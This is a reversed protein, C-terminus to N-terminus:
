IPRPKFEHREFDDYLALAGVLAAAPVFLNFVPIAFGLFIATGFGFLHGKHSLCWARRQEFTLGHFDFAVDLYEWALFFATVSFGLTAYAIPGVAIPTIYLILLGVQIILYWWWKKASRVVTDRVGKWWPREVVIGGRAKVVRAALADYFPASVISGLFAFLSSGLFLLAVIVAVFAAAMLLAGWWTEPLGRGLFGSLAWASAYLFAVLLFANVLLPVALLPWGGRDAYVARMGRGVYSFGRRFGRADSLFERAAKAIWM